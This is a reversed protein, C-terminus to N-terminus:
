VKFYHLQDNLKQTVGHLHEAASAIEEIDRANTTTIENIHEIEDMAKKIGEGSQETTNTAMEVVSLSTQMLQVSTEIKSSVEESQQVLEHFLKANEDMQSGSDLISQVIISVTANIEVLSKQTREALQRVEAAVVAFGRGHEGARAAEIAANLALLNTQDAIDNIVTLVDKVRDADHSLAEMKHHLENEVQETQEIKAILLEFIKNAEQLSQNTEEIEKKAQKSSLVSEDIQVKARLGMQTTQLVIASEKEARTGINNSTSSLEHAVAANEDSAHIAGQVINRLRGMFANLADAIEKLEDNYPTSYHMTLDRENSVIAKTLARLPVLVSRIIIIILLLVVGVVISGVLLYVWTTKELSSAIEQDVAKLSSALLEETQHVTDRLKGNLGSKEDLGLVEYAKVYVVFSERYTELLKKSFALEEHNQVYVLAKEFNVHHEEAYKPSLRLMFDKENRRLTLMLTQIEYDKLEKFGSEAEHIAQRMKGELGEEPSLGIQKKQAVVDNFVNVYTKIVESLRVFQKTDIGKSDAEHVVRKLQEQLHAASELLTKAYMEDHRMLFDKEYKRLILISEKISSVDSRLTMLEKERDNFIKATTHIATLGLLVVCALLINRAKISLNTFM